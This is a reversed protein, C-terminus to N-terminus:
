YQSLGAERAWNWRCACRRPGAATSALAARQGRNVESLISVGGRVTWQVLTGQASALSQPSLPPHGEPSPQLGHVEKKVTGSRGCGGHACAQTRM